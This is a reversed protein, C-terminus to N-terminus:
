REAESGPKERINFIIKAAKGKVDCAVTPEAHFDQDHSGMELCKNINAQYFRMANGTNPLERTFIPDATQLCGWLLEANAEPIISAPLLPMEDKLTFSVVVGPQGPQVNYAYDVSSVLGTSTIRNSVQNLIDYNVKQGVKLGSLRLLSAPPLRSGTWEVGKLEILKHHDEAQKVSDPTTSPNEQARLLCGLVLCLLATRASM